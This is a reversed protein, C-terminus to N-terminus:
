IYEDHLTMIYSTFILPRKQVCYKINPDIAWNLIFLIELGDSTENMHLYMIYLFAELEPYMMVLFM